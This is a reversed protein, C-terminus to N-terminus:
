NVRVKHVSAPVPLTRAVGPDLLPGEDACSKRTGDPAPQYINEEQSM